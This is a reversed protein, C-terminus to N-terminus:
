AACWTRRRTGASCPAGRWRCRGSGTSPATAHPRVRAVDRRRVDRLVPDPRLDRGDPVRRVSGGPIKIAGGFVYAFLVVFMIPQLTVDVLAEPERRMHLLGRRAVVSVDDVFGGRRHEVPPLAVSM